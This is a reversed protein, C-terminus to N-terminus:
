LLLRGNWWSCVCFFCDEGLMCRGSGVQSKTMDLSYTMADTEVEQCPLKVTECVDSEMDTTESMRCSVYWFTNKKFHIKLLVKLFFIYIGLFSSSVRSKWTQRLDSGFVLSEKRVSFVHIHVLIYTFIHIYVYYRFGNKRDELVSEKKFRSGFWREEVNNLLEWCGPATGWIGGRCWGVVFLKWAETVITREIPTGYDDVTKEVVTQIKKKVETFILTKCCTNKEGLLKWLQSRLFMWNKKVFGMQLFQLKKLTSFFSCFDDVFKLDDMEPIEYSMDIYIFNFQKSTLTSCQCAATTFLCHRLTDKGVGTKPKWFTGYPIGSSWPLVYCSGTEKVQPVFFLVLFCSM